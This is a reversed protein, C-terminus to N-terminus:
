QAKKLKEIEERCQAIEQAADDLAAYFDFYDASPSEKHQMCFTKGIEAYIKEMKDQESKIKLNLKAIKATEQAKTLAEQGKQALTDMWAM